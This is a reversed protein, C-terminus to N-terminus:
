SVFHMQTKQENLVQAFLGEYRHCMNKITFEPYVDQRTRLSMKQYEKENKLLYQMRLVANDVVQEDKQILFGNLGDSIIEHIAGVHTSIVPVNMLMAEQITLPIGEHTSAVVLLFTDRLLESVHTVAGPLVFYRILGLDKIKSKLSGLLPGDGAMVFCLPVEPNKALLGRAMNVFIFPNKEDAMRAIFSIIKTGDPIQYKRRFQGPSVYERSFETPDSGNHIVKLRDALVDSLGWVGYRHKMYALLHRSICVRWDVLPAGIVSIHQHTGGVRELHIVDIVKIHPFVERVKGLAKYVMHENTLLIVKIDLQRIIQILYDAYIDVDYIASIGIFNVFYTLFHKTWLNRDRNFCFLHFDYGSPILGRVVDQMVRESGGMTLFPIICLVQTKSTDPSLLGSLISQFDRDKKFVKLLRRSILVGLTSIKKALSCFIGGWFAARLKFDLGSIKQIVPGWILWSSVKLPMFRLMYGGIAGVFENFTLYGHHFRLIYALFNISYLKLRTMSQPHDGYLYLVRALRRMAFKKEVRLWYDYDEVWEFCPDFEGITEYVKRTYLYCAGISNEFYFTGHTCPKFTRKGNTLDLVDMDTYVFDVDPHEQLFCLMEELAGPLYQNDDSTWTLYDGQAAKFGVNLSGPLRLNRKNRIYRIRPDAYSKIIDATTDTSADDVIILEMNRYTQNLCSDIASRLYRSGNYVALVISIKP